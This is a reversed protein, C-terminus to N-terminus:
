GSGWRGENDAFSRSSAASIIRNTHVPDRDRQGSDGHEGREGAAKGCQAQAAVQGGRDREGAADDHRHREEVHQRLRDVRHVVGAAHRCEHARAEEREEKCLPQEHQVVAVLRLLGPGVRLDPREPGATERQM